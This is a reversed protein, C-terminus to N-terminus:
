KSSLQTLIFHIILYSVFVLNLSQNVKELVEYIPTVIKKLFSEEGLPVLQTAAGTVHQANNFLTEHMEKAM